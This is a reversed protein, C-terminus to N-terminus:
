QGIIDVLYNIKGGLRDNTWRLTVISKGIGGDKIKCNDSAGGQDKVVIESIKPVYKKDKAEEFKLKKVIDDDPHKLLYTEYKHHHGWRRKVFVKQDKLLYVDGDKHKGFHYDKKPRAVKLGQVCTVLCMAFALTFFIKSVAM